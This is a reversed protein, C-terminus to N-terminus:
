DYSTRGRRELREVADLIKESRKNLTEINTQITGVKEELVDLKKDVAHFKDKTCYNDLKTDVKGAEATIMYRTNEERKDIGASYTAITLGVVVVFTSIIGVITAPKLRNMKKGLCLRLDKIDKDYESM